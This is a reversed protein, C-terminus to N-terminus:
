NVIDDKIPPIDSPAPNEKAGSTFVSTDASEEFAKMRKMWGIPPFKGGSIYYLNNFASGAVYFFVTMKGILLLYSQIDAHHELEDIMGMSQFLMMGIYAIFVKTILGVAMAKFDFKHRLWWKYMGTIWDAIIAWFIIIVFDGKPTVYDLYPIVTLVVPSSIISLIFSILLKVSLSGQELIWGIKILFNVIMDRDQKFYM